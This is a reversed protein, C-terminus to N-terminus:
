AWVVECALYESLVIRVLVGGTEVVAYRYRGPQVVIWDGLHRFQDPKKGWARLFARSGIEPWPQLEGSTVREFTEREQESLASLPGFAVHVPEELKPYLEYAAHGRALKEIIKRVRGTEPKWVLIDSGNRVRAEEIRSQLARNESLIRQVNARQLGSPEVTGCIVCELFCSVYQEDLSFGTNCSKCAEVVPLQPPFPEDLLVKSPVHDHSNPKAGCYVCM